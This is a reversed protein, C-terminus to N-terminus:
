FLYDKMLDARDSDRFKNQSIVRAFLRPLIPFFSATLTECLTEAQHLGIIESEFLKLYLDIPCIKSYGRFLDDNWAYEPM